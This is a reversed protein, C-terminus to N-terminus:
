PKVGALYLLKDNLRALSSGILGRLERQVLQKAQHLEGDMALLMAKYRVFSRYTQANRSTTKELSKVAERLRDRNEFHIALDAKTLVPYDVRPFKHIAEEILKMSAGEDSDYYAIMRANASMLMEQARDSPDISLRELVRNLEARVDPSRDKMMLCAIYNNANIPNSPRNRYNEKAFDYALEYEDSQMYVLVLEGIVGADRKGSSLVRNLSEEAKAYEGSLRYFFGHLFSRDPEPITRVEGFFKPDRLRALCQCKIYRIHNVTNIHLFRERSLIRNALAIADGYSRDEDYLRKITKLFISPVLLSDPIGNGARLSEQASFLYDSIDVNDDSYSELFHKVHRKISSEFTTPLGFRSRGIYDRIVENVRVYDSSAGMRECVSAALLQDLMPAYITHDVIDFLAEYSIFEFRSLLYIFDLVNPASQYADLVVKAKDSAYQQIVHSQRKANFLGQERLLDVAFLVQEPYGTLLDAFFAYDDHAVEMQHFRAYRVMLGNREPQELETVHVAFALPNLRNFSPLPRFQSAIAFVVKGAPELHKLLEAFWDVLERNHQILVGRDEIIIREHENAVEACVQKAIEIKESLSTARRVDDYSNPVFGLDLIKLIFDEIGDFTALPIVPFEYSERVLNAKRAAFQLLSKRGIAPLGSAVIAVPHPQTFDDLREEIQRVLDNRGVFIERREKLRPHYVWSLEILRSNIKRAAITPKLIPQININRRMWEPIGPDDHRLGAEIIIPYIRDLKSQDFRDKAGALEERVWTSALASRSLFIVFLSSEDLGSIIEELPSMGAEFTEEDFVKAESRIRSAVARVYSDKDRSSHSLFCKLM